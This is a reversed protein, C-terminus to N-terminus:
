RSRATLPPAAPACPGCPESLERLAPGAGKPDRRLADELSGGPLDEVVAAAAEPGVHLLRGTRVGAATLRDHAPTFLDAGGARSFSDRPDADPLDGYDEDPSWVYAIAARALPQLDAVPRPQRNGTM